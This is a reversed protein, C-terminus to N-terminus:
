VLNFHQNLTMSNENSMLLKKLTRYWQTYPINFYVNKRSKQIKLKGLLCM